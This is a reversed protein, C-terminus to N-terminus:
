AKRQSSSRTFHECAAAVTEDFPLLSDLMARKFPNAVEPRAAAFRLKGGAQRAAFFCRVCFLSGAADIEEIGALDLIVKPHVDYLLRTFATELESAAEATLKGTLRVIVIGPELKQINVQVAM